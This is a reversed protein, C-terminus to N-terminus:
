LTYRSWCIGLLFIFINIGYKHYYGKCNATTLVRTNSLIVGSCLVEANERNVIRAHWPFVANDYYGESGENQRQCSNGLDNSVGCDFCKDSCYDWKPNLYHQGHNLYCWPKSYIKTNEITCIKHKGYYTFPFFCEGTETICRKANASILTQLLIWITIIKM